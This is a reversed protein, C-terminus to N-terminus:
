DDNTRPGYLQRWHRLSGAIQIRECQPALRAVLDEAIALAGAYPIRDHASM